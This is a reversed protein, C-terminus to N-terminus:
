LEQPTKSSKSTNITMNLSVERKKGDVTLNTKIELWDAISWALSDYFIVYFNIKLGKVNWWMMTCCEVALRNWYNRVFDSEDFLREVWEFTLVATFWDSNWNNRFNVILKSICDNNGCDFWFFCRKTNMRRGGRLSSIILKFLRM